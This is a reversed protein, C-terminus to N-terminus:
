AKSPSFRDIQLMCETVPDREAIWEVNDFVDQDIGGPAIQDSSFKAAPISYVYTQGDLDTIPFSISVTRHALFDDFLTEDEFYATISGSLNFRGTGIGRAFKNSVAAQQRLSAEGSLSLSQISAAFSAGDKEIQGVNTTANVVEGPTPGLVTYSGANSLVTSQLLQTARGQFGLTGTIIAGTAVELSFTGLVMGDQVMYQGVDNFATEVTFKRQAIESFSGPNRVMSGKVSVASGAAVAASPAPSTTITSDSLSTITYVVDTVGSLGDVKIKQGVKLQGAAIAAAFPTGVSNFGTATSEITTDGLVIVDNADYLRAAVTGAEVVLTTQDVTIVTDSGSLAVNAISFYDNNAANTFGKLLIRRGAVLYGTLDTGSVTIASIGTVSITSGKWFDRSMPRSWTSMLFAAVFEDQAGASYEFNIDGSSAASVETISSVMRDARLEDSVVTEKSASLSSSTLRVERTSGSSPTTGWVSEEIVRISARNADAFSM